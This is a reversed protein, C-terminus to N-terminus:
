TRKLPGQDRLRYIVARARLCAKEDGALAKISLADAAETLAERRAGQVVGEVLAKSAAMETFGGEAATLLWPM